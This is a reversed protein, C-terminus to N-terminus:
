RHSPAQLPLRPSVTDYVWTNQADIEERLSTPYLDIKAFEAPLESNFQLRHSAADTDTLAPSEPLFLLPCVESNLM